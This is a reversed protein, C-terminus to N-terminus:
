YVWRVGVGYRAGLNTLYEHMEDRRSHTRTYEDTLNIAEAFVTVGNEFSYSVIADVQSYEEFYVPHFAGAGDQTATLFEDRWNWALRAIWGDKDYFAVLNASDSLGLIAFQDNLNANEYAVDADVITYNAIFGFGSDGFLHQLAFEWGDITVDRQNSPVAITFEAAPDQGPIGQISGTFNGSVDTGDITVYETDGYTEFICQRIAGQDGTGGTAANCEDYWQGRGPHPLNFPTGVVQSVGVYNSTDKYYYAVALYSGESYYWEASLDYNDSELPLLGPDGSSGTGGPRRVDRSLTTGGQISQWDPRGISQSYSARLILDDRVAINFDINPLWYDYDGKATDFAPAGVNLRYENAGVWTINQPIPVLSASKVETEEYRVGLRLNANMGGVDFNQHFQVYASTSEETTRLDTQFDDSAAMVQGTAAERAAAVDAFDWIFMQNWQGSQGAGSVGSFLSNIDRLQFLDDPYDAPSGIGGWNDYQVFNYASRNDVDTLTVGFDLSKGDDMDWRGGLDVQDIEMKQYSNRFSAGGTLLNSAQYDGEGLTLDLSPFDRSYDATARGGTTFLVGGIVSNTGFPSTRGSESTSHHYDLRFSTADSFDWLANFGISDLETKWGDEGGGSGVDRANWDESWVLPTSINGGTFSGNSAGCLGCQIFWVSMDNRREEIELESYTYDLTFELTDSPAFQLVLQGNIREREGEVTIYALNQPMFYLTDAQGAPNNVYPDDATVVQGSFMTAGPAPLAQWGPDLTTGSLWGSTTGAQNYGYEREQYSGSLAIGFKGDAFVNSYIGSVEPTWSDDDRSTDLIGKAGLSISQDGIDLPRATKVNITAGIGGTPISALSTKYVEVASVAESALNSFDFARSNNAATSKLTTAPMQRGNLLVLNYDPGIGRVTVRQGEGEAGRESSRDISVGTIRQLSEALNTDPFKGIDEAIIADVVGDSDRKVDMSAVLSRRVGTVVVEEMTLEDEAEQAVVPTLTTAGLAFAIGSALPNKRYTFNHM